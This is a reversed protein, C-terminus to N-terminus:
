ILSEEDIEMVQSTMTARGKRPGEMTIFVFPEGVEPMALLRCKIPRPCYKEHGQISFCGDGLDRLLYLTNRTQVM